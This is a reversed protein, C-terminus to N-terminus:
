GGAREATVAAEEAAAGAPAVAPGASLRGREEAFVAGWGGLEPPAGRPPTETDPATAIM